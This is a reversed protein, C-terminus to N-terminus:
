ARAEKRLKEVYQKTREFVDQYKLTLAFSGDGYVDVREIATGALEGTLERAEKLKKMSLFWKNGSSLAERFQEKQRAAEDMQRNLEEYGAAYAQKAFRYEEEDLIGQVYDEYLGARKRGAAALKMSLSRIRADMQRAAEAAAGSERAQRVLKEYDLATQAQTCVADAIRGYLAKQNTYHQACERYHSARYAGCEYVGYYPLGTADRRRQLVMRRGCDGCFIKGQLFDTIKAREAASRERKARAEQAAASLMGAVEDFDERSVLPEHDDEFVTWEDPDTVRMGKIGMHIASRTRGLVKDGKYAPNELIANIGGYTWRKGTGRGKAEWPTPINREELKKCIQYRPVGELMWRFMDRVYGAYPEDPVIQTRDGNWRYGYPLNHWTYAGSERQAKLAASVKRSIDRSYFDNIMNALPVSLAGSGTDATFSDYQEKVSIFRIGLKPFVRELYTGTEIYNRGFRSLDRVVVCEIRGDRIGDMMSYFGPRSFVTGTRGNDEFVAELKLYPHEGIYSLCIEKQTGISAGGDDKGSNEVSLRAYVATRFVRPVDKRTETRGTGAAQKRSTRAM